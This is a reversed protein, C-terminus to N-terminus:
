NEDKNVVTPTCGELEHMTSLLDVANNGSYSPIDM